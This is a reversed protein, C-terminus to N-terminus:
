KPLRAAGADDPGTNYRHRVLYKGDADVTEFAGQNQRAPTVVQWQRAHEIEDLNGFVMGEGPEGDREM